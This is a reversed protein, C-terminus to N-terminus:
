EPVMERLQAIRGDMVGLDYAIQLLSQRDKTFIQLSEALEELLKASGENQAKM